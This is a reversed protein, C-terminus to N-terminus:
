PKKPIDSPTQEDKPKSPNPGNNHQSPNHGDEIINRGKLAKQPHRILNQSDKYESPKHGDEIINCGKLAKTFTPHPTSKRQNIGSM